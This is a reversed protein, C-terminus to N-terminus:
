FFLCGLYVSATLNQVNLFVLTLCNLVGIGWFKICLYYRGVCMEFIQIQNLYRKSQAM